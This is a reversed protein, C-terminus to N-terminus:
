FLSGMIGGLVWNALFYLLISIIVFFPIKKLGERASGKQITSIIMASICSTITMMILVFWKFDSPKISSTSSFAFASGSSSVDISGLITTVVNLLQTALAFLVPSIVISAFTIFIVYTLVDAAMQKKMIRIQQINLAIKNLLDAIEGGGQMGELLLNISRTLIVSDYKASFNKLAKALDEGTLTAKAVEEIEKALVGFKPRVAFWLARDVPMGASINSSTLQLFDALVEELEKRRRYTKADLYLYIGLFEIILIGLYGFIWIGVIIFFLAYLLSIKPHLIGLILMALSAISCIIIPIKYLVTKKLKIDDVDEYGAKNLFFRLQKRKSVRVRKKSKLVKFVDKKIARKKEAITEKTLKEENTKKKQEEKKKEQKEEEKKGKQEKENAKLLGKHPKKKGEQSIEKELEEQFKDASRKIEIETEVEKSEKRTQEGIKGKKGQWEKFKETYDSM